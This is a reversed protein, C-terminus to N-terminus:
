NGCVSRQVTREDTTERVTPRSTSPWNRIRVTVSTEGAGVAEQERRVVGVVVWATSLFELVHAKESSVGLQGFRDFVLQAVLVGLTDETQGLRRDLLFLGIM